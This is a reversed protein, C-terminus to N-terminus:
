SATVVVVTQEAVIVVDEQEASARPRFSVKLRPPTSDREIWFECDAGRLSGTFHQASLDQLAAAELLVVAHDPIADGRSRKFAYHLPSGGLELSELVQLVPTRDGVECAITGGEHVTLSGLTLREHLSRTLDLTGGALVVAACGGSAYGRFRILGHGGGHSGAEAVLTAQDASAHYDFTTTGGPAGAVSAGKNVIRARGASPGPMSDDGRDKGKSWDQYTFLTSGPVTGKASGPHNTITAEAASPRAYPWKGNVAFLTHGGSQPTATASGYNDITAQGANGAGYIGTFETHGGTGAQGSAAGLNAIRARGATAGFGPAMYPSNNNFSTVGGHGQRAAENTISADAASASGDFATDGGNGAAGTAGENVITAHAATSQEYFQTNGGDGVTGGVNTFSASAATAHNHFVVNGFTDADPGTTGSVRFKAKAATSHHLFRVEAGVTAYGSPPRAGVSVKFHASGASSRQNFAIIGGSQADPTAPGVKYLVNSRGASAQNLFALQVQSTSVSSAQINFTQQHASHNAVGLGAISLTPLAPASDDFLLECAPADAAFVVENVTQPAALAFTVTTSTNAASASTNSHAAFTAVSTPLQGNSWSRPSTWSSSDGAGAWSSAVPSPPSLPIPAETPYSQDIARVLPPLDTRPTSRQFVAEFSPAAAIREGMGWRSRPIGFWSLVTAALSTADYPTGTDSRFVTNQEVLPSIILTPVRTGTTNFEYGDVGDNPWAKRMPEAPVHDYLGGGKSFSVVLVTEHWNPSRSLAEFIDKLAQEGPLVNGGPHYSTFLGARDIWVPELFSFAPLTGNEAAALFSAMPQVYQGPYEDVSPLQGQLALHYTYPQNEWLVSYYIAWDMVGNNALVKWLCQRHPIDAFSQYATGGEYDVTLNYASGSVLTARNTTTGGAESCFWHDSVAYAK